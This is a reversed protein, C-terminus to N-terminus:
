YKSLFIQIGERPKNLSKQISLKMIQLIWVSNKCYNLELHKLNGTIHLFGSM